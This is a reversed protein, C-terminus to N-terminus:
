SSRILTFSSVAQWFTSLATLQDTVSDFSTPHQALQTRLDTLIKEREEIIALETEKKSLSEKLGLFM